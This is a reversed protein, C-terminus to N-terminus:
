SSSRRRESSFEEDSLSGQEHLDGSDSSGEMPVVPPAAQAVGARQDEEPPQQQEKAAWMQTQRRSVRGSVASATGAVLATRAMHTRAHCGLSAEREAALLAVDVRPVRDDRRLRADFSVLSGMLFRAERM